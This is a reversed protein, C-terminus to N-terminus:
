PSFFEEGTMPAPMMARMGNTVGMAARIKRLSRSVGMFMTPKMMEKTPTM